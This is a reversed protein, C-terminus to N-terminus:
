CCQVPGQSLSDPQCEAPDLRQGRRVPVLCSGQGDFMGLGHESIGSASGAGAQAGKRETASALGAHLGHQDAKNQCMKRRSVIAQHGARLVKWLQNSWPSWGWRDDVEGAERDHRDRKRDGRRWCAFLM